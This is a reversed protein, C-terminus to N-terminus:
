GRKLRASCYYGATFLSVAPSLLPVVLRLITVFKSDYPVFIWLPILAAIMILAIRTIQFWLKHFYHATAARAPLAADKVAFWRGVLAACPLMAAPFGVTLGSVGALALALFFLPAPTKAMNQEGGIVVMLCSLASIVLVALIAVTAVATMALWTYFELDDVKGAISQLEATEEATYGFGPWQSGRSHVLSMDFAWYRVVLAFWRELKSRSEALESM